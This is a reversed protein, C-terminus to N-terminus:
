PMKYKSMKQIEIGEENTHTHTHIHNHTHKYFEIKNRM